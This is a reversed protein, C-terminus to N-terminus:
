QLNDSAELVESRRWGTTKSTSSIRSLTLVTIFNSSDSARVILWAPDVATVTQIYQKGAHVFTNYIIWEYNSKVLASEPHIGAEYNDNVTVYIDDDKGTYFASQHFFSQALAKRINTDYNEDVFPTARVSEGLFQCAIGQLQQGILLVEELVHSSLFADFCWQGLDINGQVKVRVYAHLANLQTLHDSSWPLVM